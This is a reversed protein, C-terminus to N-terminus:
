LIMSDWSSDHAEIGDIVGFLELREQLHIESKLTLRKMKNVITM